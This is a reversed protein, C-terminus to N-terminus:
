AIAKPARWDRRWKWLLYAGQLALLALTGIYVWDQLTYGSATTVAVAAPPAIRGAAGGIETAIEKTFM